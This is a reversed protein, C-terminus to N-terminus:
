RVYGELLMDHGLRRWRPSSLRAALPKAPEISPGRGGLVLPATIAAVQDALGRALLAGLLVGGGEVLLRRVGRRRLDALAAELDVRGGAGAARVVEVGPRRALARAKPGRARVAYLLVPRDAGLLRADLPTRLRSDFVVAAPQARGEPPGGPRRCTLRPDDALVTRVGVGVAEVRGRLDHVFRSAQTGSIAGGRGPAPSLRGDLSAAWKLLVWPRELRLARRVPGLLAAGERPLAAAECRIGAAELVRAARGRHAPNPDDAAWVVRAVGAAVLAQVCPGTKGATSCPELSVYATAGRARRGADRLAEVEAPPGGYARHWGRGVVRGDRALVCGVIPNPEVAFRGREALAIADRLPDPRHAPV